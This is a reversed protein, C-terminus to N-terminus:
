KTNMERCVCQTYKVNFCRPFLRKWWMEVHFVCITNTPNFNFVWTMFLFCQGKNEKRDRKIYMWQYNDTNWCRRNANIPKVQHLTKLGKDPTFSIFNADFPFNISPDKACREKTTSAINNPFYQLTHSYQNSKSFECSPKPSWSHSM